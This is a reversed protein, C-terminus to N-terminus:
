FFIFHCLSFFGLLRDFDTVQLRFFIGLATHGAVDAIVHADRTMALAMADLTVLYLTGAAAVTLLLAANHNSRKHLNGKDKERSEVFSLRVFESPRRNEGIKTNMEMSSCNALRSPENDICGEGLTIAGKM